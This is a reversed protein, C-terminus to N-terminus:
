SHRSLFQFYGGFYAFNNEGGFSTFNGMTTLDLIGIVNDEFLAYFGRYNRQTGSINRFMINAYPAGRTIDTVQLQFTDSRFASTVIGDLSPTVAM